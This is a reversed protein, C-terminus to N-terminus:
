FAVEAVADPWGSFPQLDLPEPWYLHAQFVMTLREALNPIFQTGTPRGIAEIQSAPL